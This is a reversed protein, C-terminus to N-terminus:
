IWRKRKFYYLMSLTLAVMFIIITPYGYEWHLEPMHQFNMGYISSILTLPMIITTIITLVKMIENMKNSVVSIHVEIINTLIERYNDIIDCVRTMHDHVDRFYLMAKKNVFKKNGKTLAMIVDRQAIANKKGKILSTKIRLIDSMLNASEAQFIQEEIDDIKDELWALRPFFKDVLLDIMQHMVLDPSQELLRTIRSREAEVFASVEKIEELSSTIVFNRGLIINIDTTKFEDEVEFPTHVTVYLYNEFDEIKILTDKALCDEVTLKHINFVDKLLAYDSEIPHHTYVWYNKYRKKVNVKELPIVSLKKLKKDYEFVILMVAKKIQDYLFTQKLLIYM